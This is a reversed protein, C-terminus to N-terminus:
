FGTLEFVLLEIASGDERKQALLALAGNDSATLAVPWPNDTGLLDDCDIKGLFAGDMAFLKFDNYFGDQVLIGNNTQVIGTVSGIASDDLWDSSGFIALENGDFDYMAVRTAYETTADSGAVFVNDATIIIYDVSGFRGQRATDDSLDTLVWTKTAMGDPTLTIKKVDSSSWYYLGWQGDPSIALYGDLEFEEPIGDKYSLAQYFGDTIYLTGDRTASLRRYDDGLDTPEGTASLTNDSHNFIRLKQGTLIYVMDDIAAISSNYEDRVVISETTRLWDARLEYEGVTLATTAPQYPVGDEPMPPDELPPDPITYTFHITNLIDAVVDDIQDSTSVSISLTISAEPIRAAYEAYLWYDEYETCLFTIGDIVKEDLADKGADNAHALLTDISNRYNAVEEVSAIIRISTISWGNEDNLDYQVSDYNDWSYTNFSDGEWSDPFAVTFFDCTFVQPLAANDTPEAVTKEFVIRVIDTAYCLSLTNTDSDWIPDYLMYSGDIMIGGDAENWTFAEAYDPTLQVSGTGDGSLEMAIGDPFFMNIDYAVGSAEYAICRWNGTFDFAPTEVNSGLNVLAGFGGQQQTDAARGFYMTVGEDTNVLMDNEFTFPVVTNDVFIAIGAGTPQWTGEQKTGFSTLLVTGDSNLQAKLMDQLNEGEYESLMVGDGMDVYMCDWDGAFDVGMAFTVPVSVVTLMLFLMCILCAIKKMM